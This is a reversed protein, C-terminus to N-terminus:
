RYFSDPVTINLVHELGHEYDYIFHQAKPIAKTYGNEYHWLDTATPSSLSRVICGGKEITVQESHLHGAHVEHYKTAGWEVPYERALINQINKSLDCGHLFGILTNGFVVVKRDIPDDSITVNPNEAFAYKLAVTAAYSMLKDHNSGVYIVEVPAIKLLKNVTEFLLRIGYNLLLRADICTSQPTGKTTSNNLNDNNFFDHSFIFLIKKFKYGQIRQIAQDLIYHYIKTAINLDYQTGTVNLFAYKGLHLDTINFEFMKDSDEPYETVKQTPANFNIEKICDVIGEFSLEGNNRPKAIIKSSCLSFVGDRKSYMEHSGHWRQHVYYKDPDIHHSKLLDDDSIVGGEPIEVPMQSTITGDSDQTVSEKYKYCESQEAAIDEPEISQIKISGKEYADVWINYQTLNNKIYSRARDEISGTTIGCEIGIDHWTLDIQETKKKYALEFLKNFDITKIIM